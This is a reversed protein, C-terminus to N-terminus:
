LNLPYLCVDDAKETENEKMEVDHQVGDGDVDMGGYDRGYSVKPVNSMAEQVEMHQTGGGSSEDQGDGGKRNGRQNLSQYLLMTGHKNVQSFWSQVESRSVTHNSDGPGEIVETFSSMTSTLDIAPDLLNLKKKYNRRKLPKNAEIRGSDVNLTDGGVGGGKAGNMEVDGDGDKGDVVNIDGSEIQTVMRNMDGIDGGNQAALRAAAVEERMRALKGSVDVEENKSRQLREIQSGFSNEDGGGGGHGNQTPGGHVTNGSMERLASQAALEATYKKLLQDMETEKESISSTVDKKRKRKFYHSQLFMTWFEKETFRLPVNQEYALKVEPLHIFIELIREATLNITLKKPEAGDPTAENQATQQQIDDMFLQYLSWMNDREMTKTLVKNSMGPNLGMSSHRVDIDKGYEEWFESATLVKKGVLTKYLTALYKHKALKCARKRLTEEDMGQHKRKM